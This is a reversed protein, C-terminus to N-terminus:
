LSPFLLFWPFSSKTRRQLFLIRWEAVRLVRGPHLVFTNVPPFIPTTFLSCFIELPLPPPRRILSLVVVSLFPSLTHNEFFFVVFVSSPPSLSLGSWRGPPKIGATHLLLSSYIHPLPPFKLQLVSPPQPIRQYFPFALVKYKAAYRRFSFPLNFIPPFPCLSLYDSLPPSSSSM